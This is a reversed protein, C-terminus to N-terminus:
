HQQRLRPVFAPVKSQYIKYAEGFEKISDAEEKKALQWYTAFLIPLMILGLVTPWQLFFGIMIAVFGLYQPHRLWAYPGTQAVHKHRQARHLVRWSWALWVVGGWILVLSALYFPSRLFGGPLEFIVAWLHGTSHSAVQLGEYHQSLWGSLFYLTLPFGYMETFFAIAFAMFSGCGRWDLKTKPRFYSMVFFGFVLIHFVVLDWHGFATHFSEISM